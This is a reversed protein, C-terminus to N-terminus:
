LLTERRCEDGEDGLACSGQAVSTGDWGFGADVACKKHANLTVHFILASHHFEIPMSQPRCDQVGAIAAKPLTVTALALAALLGRRGQQPVAPIRCLLSSNRLRRCRVDDPALGKM